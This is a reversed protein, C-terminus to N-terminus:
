FIIKTYSITVAHSSKLLVVLNYVDTIYNYFIICVCSVFFLKVMKSVKSQIHQKPLQSM